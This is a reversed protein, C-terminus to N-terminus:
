ALITLLFDVSKEADEKTGSNDIVFDAHGKKSEPSIQNAMRKRIAEEPQGLRVAARKISTEEDLYVAIIYDFGEELQAEFVLASEVFVLAEGEEELRRVEAIMFDIVAPHVLANLRALREQSEKDEGFVLDALKQKNLEGKDSYIDDGFEKKIAKIVKQDTVMLEKAKDDTNIVPFGKSKIYEAVTSKGSGISGTIAVVKNKKDMM